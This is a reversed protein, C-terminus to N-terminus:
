LGIRRQALLLGSLPSSAHCRGKLKLFVVGRLDGLVGFCPCLSLSTRRPSALNRAGRSGLDKQMTRVGVPYRQVTNTNFMGDRGAGMSLDDFSGSRRM